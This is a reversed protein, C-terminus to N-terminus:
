ALGVTKSTADNKAHSGTPARIHSSEEAQQVQMWGLVEFEGYFAKRNRVCPHGFVQRFDERDLPM